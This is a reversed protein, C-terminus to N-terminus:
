KNDKKDTEFQNVLRLDGSYFLRIDDVGYKLMALREVSMGFAFGSFENPNIGSTSLVKPHVMGAGMVEIWGTGKCIPCGEKGQGDCKFCSIDVETGPEVFPFFSPRFRVNVDKEFLKDFFYNITSKLDAMSVKKDIVLGECQYFQMEHTADTAEQRFVRGPCVMKFPPKNKEMFHAQIASTQTRLLKREGSKDEAWPKLWFTDQMDRAPHDKPVNLADFNYYETEMEPGDAKVFGLEGFISVMRYIIDTVPHITSKEKM